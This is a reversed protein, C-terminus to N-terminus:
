KWIGSTGSLKCGLKLVEYIDILHLFKLRVMNWYLIRAVERITILWEGIDHDLNWSYCRLPKRQRVMELKRRNSPRPIWNKSSVGERQDWNAELGFNGCRNEEALVVVAWTTVRPPSWCKIEFKSIQVSNASGPLWTRPPFWGSTLFSSLPLALSHRPLVRRLWFLLGFISRVNQVEQNKPLLWKCKHTKSLVLM